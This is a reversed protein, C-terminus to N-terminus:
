EFDYCYSPHIVLYCYRSLQPISTLHLGQGSIRVTIASVRRYRSSRLGYLPHSHPIFPLDSAAVGALQSSHSRLFHMNSADHSLLPGLRPVIPRVWFPPRHFIPVQRPLGSLTLQNQRLENECVLYGPTYHLGLAAVFSEESRPFQSCARMLPRYWSFTGVVHQKCSSQRFLSRRQSLWLIPQCLCQQISPISCTRHCLPFCPLVIRLLNVRDTLSPVLQRPALQFLM